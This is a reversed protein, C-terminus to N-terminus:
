GGFGADVFAAEGAGGTGGALAAGGLTMGDGTESLAIQNGILGPLIATITVVNTAVTALVLQGLVSHGNIAAALAAAFAPNGSGKAFQNENAPAAEVALTVSGISIEDTGNVASEEVCTVTQSARVAAASSVQLTVNGRFVGAIFARILQSMRKMMSRKSKATVLYRDLDAKTKNAVNAVLTISAM